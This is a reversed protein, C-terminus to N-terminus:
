TRKLNMKHLHQMTQSGSLITFYVVFLLFYTNKTTLSTNNLSYTGLVKIFESSPWLQFINSRGNTTLKSSFIEHKDKDCNMTFWYFPFWLNKTKLVDSGANPWM